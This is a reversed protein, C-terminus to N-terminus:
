RPRNCFLSLQTGMMQTSVLQWGQAGERNMADTARETWTSRIMSWGKLCVVKHEWRDHNM